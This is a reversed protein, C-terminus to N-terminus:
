IEEILDDLNNSDYKSYDSEVWFKVAFAYKYNLDTKYAKLKKIDDAINNSKKAEIVIFNNNTKRHHIIIDPYVTKGTDDSSKIDEILSELKKQELGNRNYECDVNYEPFELQLYEALKHTLTRENINNELLYGDNKLLLKYAKIIKEKVTIKIGM